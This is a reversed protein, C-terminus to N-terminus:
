EIEVGTYYHKLIELYSKGELAMGRAGCGSLGVGHGLFKDGECFRDSVSTLYPTTDWGWVEKASKTKSGDSQNFYPTKILEGKFTVVEGSTQEVAKTINAARSEFSYGIYKQSTEPDDELHYPKGPFKEDMTMYYKAYTRAAVIIAKIKEPEESNSVEGLGKLYDELQLENIVVIEGDIERFELTGRFQNDNLNPNWAPRNEYNVIKTNGGDRPQIRIVGNKIDDKSVRKGYKSSYTKIFEGDQYYDFDTSSVISAEDSFRLKIRILDESRAIKPATSSFSIDIPSSLLPEQNLKPIISVGKQSSGKNPDITLVINITGIEGPKVQSTSLNASNLTLYDKKAISINLNNKTWTTQGLNRLKIELYHKNPNATDNDVQTYTTEAGEGEELVTIEFHLGTDTMWGADKVKPSFFEKYFGAQSPSILNFNFTGTEGPKVEKEELLGLSTSTFKSTRGRQHDAELTIKSEGSNQWITNGINKLKVWGNIVQGIKVTTDPFKQDVFQYKYDSQQVAIPLRVSDLTKYSGNIVPFFDGYVVDGKKGGQIKIKFTATAGPAVSNQEMRALIIPDAGPFSVVGDFDSNKNVVIFTQNNWTKKGINEMKMTVTLTEKPKLELYYLNSLDEFDYDKVFRPKKPKQISTAMAKLEPLREYLYVGPCTTSGFDSHGFINSSNEGRFQSIGNIEINHIKAKEAILNALSNIVNQPVAEIEYNGLIAIGISGNNAGATHAAIVGEGGYRGEYVQGNKDLIYNYGIDGWGRTMTHYYYIDRIAQQPNNLDKTTATHHVVIKKVKEPYQLAWKYRDGDSDKEVTRSFKLEDKFREQFSSNVPAMEPTANNDAMYRYSENAGWSQRGVLNLPTSNLALYTIESITSVSSYLPKPAETKALKTGARLFTWEPNKVVPKNIGDGYLLFKYQMKNSSNTSATAYKNGQSDYDADVKLWETWKNDNKFRIEVEVNTGEPSEQQWYGGVTTFKFDSNMEESLFVDLEKYPAISAGTYATKRAQLTINVESKVTAVYTKQNANVNLLAVLTVVATTAVALSLKTYFKM